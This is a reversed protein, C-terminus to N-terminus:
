QIVAACHESSIAPLRWEPREGWRDARVDFLQVTDTKRHTKGGLMAVSYDGVAVVASLRRARLASAMPQWSPSSSRVDLLACRTEETETEESHDWQVALVANGGAIPVARCAMAQPLRTEQLSWLDAAADYLECSDLAHGNTWGGAVLMRHASADAAAVVAGGAEFRATTM